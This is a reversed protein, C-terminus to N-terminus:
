VRTAVLVYGDGLDTRLFLRQLGCAGAMALRGPLARQLGFYKIHTTRDTGSAATAGQTDTAGGAFAQGRVNVNVNALWHTVNAMPFGYCEVHDVRLGSAELLGTIDSRGYRRFHGAWADRPSWMKMHAPVAIIARGGPRLWKVWETLASIDDEIHELVDCSLLVDFQENWEPSPADQIAANGYGALMQRAIKLAEGSTEIGICDHGGAALEALMAGAGCGVEVVRSKALGKFQALVRDRRLVFRPAPVWRGELYAGYQKDIVAPAMKAESEVHPM